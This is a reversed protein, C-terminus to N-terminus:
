SDRLFHFKKHDQEEPLPILAIYSSRRNLHFNIQPNALSKPDLGVKACFYSTIKVAYQM